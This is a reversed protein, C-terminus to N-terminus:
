VLPKSPFILPCDEGVFLIGKRGKMVHCFKAADVKELRCEEAQWEYYPMKGESSHLKGWKESCRNLGPRTYGFSPFTLPALSLTRM